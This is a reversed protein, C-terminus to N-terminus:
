ESASDRPSAAPAPSLPISFAFRCGRGEGESEVWAKGGHMEAYERVLALGLGTGKGVREGRAARTQFYREFVHERDEKSLGAGTDTVAVEVWSQPPEGGQEVVRAEVTIRGGDPTFKLANSLLNMLIQRLKTEDAQVQMGDLPAVDQLRVEVNRRRGSERFPVVVQALEGGLDVPVPEFTMRGASIKALDLLDNVLTLLHRSSSAIMSVAEDRDAGPTELLGDQLLDTYGIITNLPSRLEHSVNAFFAEKAAGAQEAARQAIRLEEMQRRETVDDYVAVVEGAPLRYVYNERWEKLGGERVLEVLKTEPSGTRWVRRLVDLFGSPGVVPFVETLRKGVANMKAVNEMRVSARNLDNIVFDRGNEVAEYIAVGGSMCDFLDRFRRESQRLKEELSRAHLLLRHNRVAKRVSVLLQEISDLPKLIYDQAGLQIAQVASSISDHGTLLIMPFDPDRRRVLELLMMGSMGGLRIDSVIADFRGPEFSALGDEASTVLTTEM